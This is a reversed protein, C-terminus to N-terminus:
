ILTRLHISKKLIKQELVDLWGRLFCHEFDMRVHSYGEVNLETCLSNGQSLPKAFLRANAHEIANIPRCQRM